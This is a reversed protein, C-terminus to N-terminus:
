QSQTVVPPPLAQWRGFTLVDSRAGVSNSTRFLVADLSKLHPASSLCYGCKCIELVLGLQFGTCWPAMIFRIPRFQTKQFNILKLFALGKVKIKTLSHLFSVYSILFCAHQRSKVNEDNSFPFLVDEQKSAQKWISLINIRKKGAGQRDLFHFKDLVFMLVFFNMLDCKQLLISM